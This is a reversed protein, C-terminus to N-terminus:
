NTNGGLAYEYKVVPLKFEKGADNKVVINSFTYVTGKASAKAIDRISNGPFFAEEMEYTAAKGDLPKVIFTARVFTYQNGKDDVVIVENGLFDEYARANTIKGPATGKSFSLKQSYSALGILLCALLMLKKM